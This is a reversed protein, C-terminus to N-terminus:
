FQESLRIFDSLTLEEGRASAAIAAKELKEAAQAKSIMFAASLNNELTKRRMLFAGKILKKLKETDQTKDKKIDFRVVASDVEPAPFFMNRSVERTIKADSFLAALLTLASYDKTKPKATIRAAVEKQVMVTVSSVPLACDLFRLIVASTIYYPLNAVVKFAGGTLELIEANSLKFIDRYIVTVNDFGSLAASLVPSLAKDIEFAIVRKARVALACTLSGAGAGIELVTDNEDIGADGVISNLLNKDWIFNQGLSKKFSLRQKEFTRPYKNAGYDL